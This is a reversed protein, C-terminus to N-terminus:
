KSLYNREVLFPMINENADKKHLRFVGTSGPRQRICKILKEMMFRILEDPIFRIYSSTIWLHKSIAAEKSRFSGALRHNFPQLSNLM